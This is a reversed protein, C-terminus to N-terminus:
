AQGGDALLRDLLEDDVTIGLGPGAPVAVTGNTVPFKEAVLSAMAPPEDVRYEFLEDARMAALLQLAAAKAIGSGWEHPICRRGAALALGEVELCTAFGGARCVDPQVIAVGDALIAAYEAPVSDAEGTSIPVASAATLARYAAHEEPQFPEEIWGPRCHEVAAVLKVAADADGWRRGVDIMFETEAGVAERAAVILDAHGAPPAPHAGLGFKMRTFGAERCSAVLEPLAAPSAPMGTTAYARVRDRRRGGLLESAPKGAAKGRIDWLALDVGALTHSVVGGRGYFSTRLFLEAWLGEDLPDQGALLAALGSAIVTEGPAGIIARAVPAFTDAEGYGTIGDDTRIRIILPDQAGHPAPRPTGAPQHNLIIADVATIKM